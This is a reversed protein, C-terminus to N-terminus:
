NNPDKYRHNINNTLDANSHEILIKVNANIPLTIPHFLKYSDASYDMFFVSGDDFLAMCPISKYKIIIHQEDNPDEFELRFWWGDAPIIQIIKTM